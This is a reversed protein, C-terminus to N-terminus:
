GPHFPKSVFCDRVVTMHGSALESMLRRVELIEERRTKWGWAGRRVHAKRKYQM